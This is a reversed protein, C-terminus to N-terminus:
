GLQARLKALGAAVAEDLKGPDRGGAQAFNPRGGGGGGAAQAAAKVADGAHAGRAVAAEGAKCVLVVKGGAATGLLAVGGPLRDCLDDALSKVTEVEVEGLAAAVVSAADACDFLIPHPEQTSNHGSPRGPRDSSIIRDM